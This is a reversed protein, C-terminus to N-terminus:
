NKIRLSNTAECKEIVEYDLNFIQVKEVGVTQDFYRCEVPVQYKGPKNNVTFEYSAYGLEGPETAKGNIKIKPQAARSYAALGATIKMAEGGHFIQSNQDVFFSYVDHSHYFEGAHLHCYRLLGNELNLVKNKLKALFTISVEPDDSFFNKYFSSATSDLVLKSNPQSFYKTMTSDIRYIAEEYSMLHAYLIDVSSSSINKSSIFSDLYKIMDRSVSSIKEAVPLWLLAKDRAGSETTRQYISRMLDRSSTNIYNNSENLGNKLEALINRNVSVENKSSCSCLLCIFIAAYTVKM